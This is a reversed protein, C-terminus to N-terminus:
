LCPFAVDFGAEGLLDKTPYGGSTLKGTGCDKNGSIADSLPMKGSNSTKLFCQKRWYTWFKCIGNGSCLNACAAEGSVKIMSHGAIDYGNYDYKNERKCGSTFTITCVYFQVCLNVM